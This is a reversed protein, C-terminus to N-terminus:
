QDKWTGQFGISAYSVSHTWDGSQHASTEYKFLQSPCNKSLMALLLAIPFRGCITPQFEEIFQFFGHLDKQEIFSIAKMDIRKINDEINSTFPTYSFTEGYHTFDSSIVILTESDILDLLFTALDKLPKLEFTGLLIPVIPTSPSICQLFPLQIQVSHESQHAQNQSIFFSSDLLKEIFPVDLCIEGLPTKYTDVPLISGSNKLMYRHSPGIIIVRRYAHHRIHSYGHAAIEGSYTYGAHPVILAKLPSLSPRPIKSLYTTVNQKLDQPDSSYWGMQSLLSTFTTKKQFIM